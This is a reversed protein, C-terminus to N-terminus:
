CDADSGSDAHVGSRTCSPSAPEHKIPSFDCVFVEEASAAFETRSYLDDTMYIDDDAHLMTITNAGLLFCSASFCSASFCSASFCSAVHTHTVQILILVLVLILIQIQGVKTTSGAHKTLDWGSTYKEHARDSM